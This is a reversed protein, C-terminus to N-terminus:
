LTALRNICPYWGGYRKAEKWSVSVSEIKSYAYSAKRISLAKREDAAQQLSQAYAEREKDDLWDPPLDESTAWFPKVSANSNQEMPTHSNIFDAKTLLGSAVDRQHLMFSYTGIPGLDFMLQEFWSSKLSDYSKPNVERLRRDKFKRLMMLKVSDLLKYAEIEFQFKRGYIFDRLMPLDGLLGGLTENAKEKVEVDVEGENEPVKPLM